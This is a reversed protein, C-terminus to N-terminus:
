TKRRRAYRALGVLGSGLLIMSGPEPVEPVGTVSGTAIYNIENITFQYHDAEGPNSFSPHYLNDSVGLVMRGGMTGFEGYVGHIGGSTDTSFPAWDTNHGTIGYHIHYFGEAGTPSVPGPDGFPPVLSVTGSYAPSGFSIGSGSLDGTNAPEEWLVGGGLQLYPLIRTSWDANLSTSLTWPFILVDYAGALASVSLANFSSSNVVTLTDPSSLPTAYGQAVLTTLNSVALGSSGDNILLISTASATNAAGALLVSLCLTRLLKM